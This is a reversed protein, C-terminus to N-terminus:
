SLMVLAAAGAAALLIIKRAPVSSARETNAQAKKIAIVQTIAGALSIGKQESLLKASTQIQETESVQLHGFYKDMYQRYTLGEKYIATDSPSDSLINLNTAM